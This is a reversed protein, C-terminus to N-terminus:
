GAQVLRHYGLPLDPPLGTGPDLALIAGDETHLEWPGGDTAGAPVQGPRFTLVPDDDVATGPPDGGDGPPPAGMAARIAAITGPPVEVWRGTVDHYGESIGWDHM